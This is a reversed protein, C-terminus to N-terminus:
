IIVMKKVKNNKIQADYIKDFNSIELKRKFTGEIYSFTTEKDYLNDKLKTFTTYEMFCRNVRKSCLKVIDMKIEIKNNNIKIMSNFHRNESINSYVMGNAIYLDDNIKNLNCSIITGEIDEIDKTNYLFTIIINREENSMNENRFFEILELEKM